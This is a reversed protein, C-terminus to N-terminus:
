PDATDSASPPREQFSYGQLGHQIRGTELLARLAGGVREMRASCLGRIERQTLPQEAQALEGLILAELENQDGPKRGRKRRRPKPKPGAEVGDNWERVIELHQQRESDEVINVVLEPPRKGHRHEVTLVVEEERWRLYLASDSWAHFESSGRLAQGGRLRGGDKRFHHVVLVAVAFERQLERLKSLIRSVEQANREDVGQLRVFPDLILLRPGVRQISERLAGVQDQEDLRVTPETCVHVPLRTFDLGRAGCCWALRERVVHLPDEGQILMVPGSSPVTFRGLCPTGTAVSVAADVALYSKGSKPEGGVIGVAQDAWLGEILWREGQPREELEAALKM